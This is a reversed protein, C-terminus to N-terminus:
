ISYYNLKQSTMLKLGFSHCALQITEVYHIRKPDHMFSSIKNTRKAKNQKHTNTHQTREAPVDDVIAM